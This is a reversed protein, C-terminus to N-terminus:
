KSATPCRQWGRCGGSESHGDMGGGKYIGGCLEADPYFDPGVCDDLGIGADSIITHDLARRLDTRPGPDASAGEHPRAGDEPRVGLKASEILRDPGADADSLAVNQTLVDRDMAANVFFHFGNEPVFIVEHGPGMDSVIGEHAIEVGEGIVDEEASVNTEAVVAEDSAAGSKMLEYPDTIIHHALSM